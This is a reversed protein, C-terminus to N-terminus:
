NTSIFILVSLGFLIVLTWAISNDANDAKNYNSFNSSRKYFNKKQSKTMTNWNSPKDLYTM